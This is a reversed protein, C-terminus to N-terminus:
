KKGMKGGAGSIMQDHCCSCSCGCYQVCLDTEISKKPVALHTMFLGVHYVALGTDNGLISNTVV